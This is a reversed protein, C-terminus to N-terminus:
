RTSSVYCIRIIDISYVLDSDRLQMISIRNRQKVLDQESDRHRRIRARDHDRARLKPLCMLSLALAKPGLVKSVANPATTVTATSSHHLTVLQSAYPTTTATKRM